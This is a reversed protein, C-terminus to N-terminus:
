KKKGKYKIEFQCNECVFTDVSGDRMKVKVNDMCHPCYREEIEAKFSAKKIKKVNKKEKSLDVPKHEGSLKDKDIVWRPFVSSIFGCDQCKMKPIVGFINRLGFFYRVNVSQCKPCVYVEVKEEKNKECKKDEIGCCKFEPIKKKSKTKKKAMNCILRQM